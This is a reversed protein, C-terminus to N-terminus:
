VLAHPPIRPVENGDLDIMPEGDDFPDEDANAYGTMLAAGRIFIEGSMGIDLVDGADDRIQADLTSVLRGVSSSNNIFPEGVMLTVTGNSETMGYGTGLIANPFAAHIDALLAPPTAQGGVSLSTLSSLDYTERDTLNLIDRYM